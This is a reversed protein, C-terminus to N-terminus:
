FDIKTNCNQCYIKSLTCEGGCRYYDNNIFCSKEHEEKAISSCRRCYWEGDSKKRARLYDDWAYIFGEYNIYGGGEMEIVQGVEGHYIGKSYDETYKKRLKMQKQHSKIAEKFARDDIHWTNGIKFADLDKKGLFVKGSDKASRRYWDYANGQAGKEKKFIEIAEKLKMNNHEKLYTMVSEKSM